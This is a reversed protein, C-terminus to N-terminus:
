GRTAGPVKGWAEADLRDCRNDWLLCGLALALAAVSGGFVVWWWWPLSMAAGRYVGREGDADRDPLYAIAAIARRANRVYLM